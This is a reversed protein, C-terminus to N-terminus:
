LIKAIIAAYQVRAHLTCTDSPTQISKGEGRCSEQSSHVALFTCLSCLLVWVVMRQRQGLKSCVDMRRLLLMAQMFQETTSCLQKYVSLYVVM